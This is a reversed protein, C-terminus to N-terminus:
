CILWNCASFLLRLLRKQIAAPTAANPRIREITFYFLMMGALTGPIMQAAFFASRILSAPSGKKNLNRCAYHSPTIGFSRKFARQFGRASEFGVQEAIKIVPVQMNILQCARELRLNLWYRQPSCGLTSNFLRSLHRESINFRSALRSLEEPNALHDNMYCIVESLVTGINEKSTRAADGAVELEARILDVLSQMIKTCPQQGTLTMARLQRAAWFCRDFASASLPVSCRPDGGGMTDKHISYLEDAIHIVTRNLQEHISRTSHESNGPFVVINGPLAATAWGETSVLVGGSHVLIVETGPHSHCLPFLGPGKTMQVMCGQKVLAQQTIIDLAM